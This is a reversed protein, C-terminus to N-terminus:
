KGSLYQERFSVMEERDGIIIFNGEPQLVTSAAPNIEFSGNKSQYAVVSVGTAKRIGMELISANQYDPKLDQHSVQEIRFEGEVGELINLFHIVSPKTILHAMHKGGLTDPMVVTNAGAKLLKKQTLTSTARSVIQITPNLERASLTIYVNEADSPLTIIVAKAWEIGAELLIEEDSADGIVVADAAKLLTDSLNANNEIVTCKQESKKLESVAKSGNRGYGCVIVHDKMKKLEKQNAYHLYQNRLEGDFVFRAIYSVIYAVLGLNLMIYASTFLMGADSLPRAERFGVTSITIATMYIAQVISYDEIIMFGIVGISASLLALGLGLILKGLGSKM